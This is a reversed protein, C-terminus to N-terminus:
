RERRRKSHALGEFSKAVEWVGNALERLRVLKLEVGLRAKDLELADPNNMVAKWAREERSYGQYDDVRSVILRDRQYVLFRLHGEEEALIRAVYGAYAKLSIAADDCNEASMLRRDAEDSDLLELAKETARPRKPPPLGKQEEWLALNARV